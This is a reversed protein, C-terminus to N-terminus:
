PISMRSGEGLHFHLCRCNPPATPGPSNLVQESVKTEGRGPLKERRGLPSCTVFRSVRKCPNRSRPLPESLFRRPCVNSTKTTTPGPTSSFSRYKYTFFQDSLLRKVHNPSISTCKIGLAEWKQWLDTSPSYAESSAKEASNLGRGAEAFM